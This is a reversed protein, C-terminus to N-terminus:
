ESRPPFVLDIIMGVPKENEIDPVWHPILVPVAHGDLGDGKAAGYAVALGAPQRECPQKGILMEGLQFIKTIEISDQSGIGHDIM